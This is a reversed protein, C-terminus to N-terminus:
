LLSYFSNYIQTHLQEMNRVLAKLDADNIQGATERCKTRFYQEHQLTDEIYLLEKETM